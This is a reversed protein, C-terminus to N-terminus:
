FKYVKTVEFFLIKYSFAFNSASFTYLSICIKIIIYAMSSLASLCTYLLMSTRFKIYESKLTCIVFYILKILEYSNYVEHRLHLYRPM